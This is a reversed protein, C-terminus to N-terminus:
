IMNKLKYGMNKVHYIFYISFILNLGGNIKHRILFFM